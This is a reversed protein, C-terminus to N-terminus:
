KPQPERDTEPVLCIGYPFWPASGPTPEDPAHCAGIGDRDRCARRYFRRDRCGSLNMITEHPTKPTITGAPVPVGGVIRGREVILVKRRLKGAQEATSRGAPGSGTVIPTYHRM